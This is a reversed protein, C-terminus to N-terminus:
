RGCGGRYRDKHTMGVWAEIPRMQQTFSARASTATWSMWPSSCHIARGRFCHEKILM